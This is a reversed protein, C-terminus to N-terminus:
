REDYELEMEEAEGAVAELEKIVHRRKLSNIINMNVISVGTELGTFVSFDPHPIVINKVHRMCAVEHTKDVSGGSCDGVGNENCREGNRFNRPNQTYVELRVIKERDLDTEIEEPSFDIESCYYM